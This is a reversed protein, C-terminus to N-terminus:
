GSALMEEVIRPNKALMALLVRAPGEPVRRGQEWNRLTGISVGIIAAFRLQSLGAKARIAAVDVDTPIHVRAASAGGKMFAAAAALGRAIGEFDSDKM